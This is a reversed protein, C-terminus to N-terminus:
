YDMIKLTGAGTLTWTKGADVEIPGYLWARENANINFVANDSVNTWHKFVNGVTEISGITGTLTNENVATGSTGGTGGVYLDGVLYINKSSDGYLWQDTGSTGNAIVLTNSNSEEYGARYGIFINGTGATGASLGAEYGLATNNSGVTNSYLAKYGVVNNGTGTTNSALSLYGVAVVGTQNYSNIAAGAGIAVSEGVTGATSSRLATSGIATNELGSLYKAASLGVATNNRIFDTNESLADSGIAVNYQGATSNTLTRTGIAVNDNDNDVLSFLSRNGIAINNYGSTGASMAEFGVAVNYNGTVNSYAAKYGIAVNSIGDTLSTLAEYGVATNKLGLATNSALANYGLATIYPATNPSTIIDALKSTAIGATGNVHANTIVGDAIEIDRIVDPAGSYGLYTLYAM